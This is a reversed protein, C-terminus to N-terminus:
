WALCETDPLPAKIPSTVVDLLSHTAWIFWLVSEYSSGIKKLLSEEANTDSIPKTCLHCRRFTSSTSLIEETQDSTTDSVTMTDKLHNVAALFVSCPTRDSKETARTVAPTFLAYAKLKKKPKSTDVSVAIFDDGKSVKMLTLLTPIRTAITHYFTSTPNMEVGMGVDTGVGQWMIYNIQSM